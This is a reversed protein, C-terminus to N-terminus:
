KPYVKEKKQKKADSRHIASVALVGAASTLVVGWCVDKHWSTLEVREISQSQGYYATGGLEQSVHFHLTVPYKPPKGTKTPPAFSLFCFQSFGNVINTKFCLEREKIAVVPFRGVLHRCEKWFENLALIDSVAKDRNKGLLYFNDYCDSVESLDFCTAIGAADLKTGDSARLIPAAKSKAPRGQFLNGFISM